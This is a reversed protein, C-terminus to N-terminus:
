KNTRRQSKAIGFSLAGSVIALGIVPTFLGVTLGIVAISTTIILPEM